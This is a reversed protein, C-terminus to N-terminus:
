GKVESFLNNAVAAGFVAFVGDVWDDLGIESMNRNQDFTRPFQKALIDYVYNQSVYVGAMAGAGSVALRVPSMGLITM